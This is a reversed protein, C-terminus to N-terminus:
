GTRARRFQRIEEEVLFARQANSIRRTSPATSFIPPPRSPWALQESDVSVTRARQRELWDSPQPSRRGNAPESQRRRAPEPEAEPESFPVLRQEPQELQEPQVPAAPEAREFFRSNVSHLHSRRKEFCEVVDVDIARNCSLAGDM